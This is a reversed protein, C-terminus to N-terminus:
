TANKNMGKGTESAGFIGQSKNIFEMETANLSKGVSNAEGIM